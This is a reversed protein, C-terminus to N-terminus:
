GDDYVLFNIMVEVSEFCVLIVYVFGDDLEIIGGVM